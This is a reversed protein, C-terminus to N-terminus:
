IRINRKSERGEPERDAFVSPNPHKKEVVKIERIGARITKADLGSFEKVAKIGGYGYGKAICGSLIRKQKENLIRPMIEYISKLVNELRDNTNMIRMRERKGQLIIKSCKKHGNM